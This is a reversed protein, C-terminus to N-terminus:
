YYGWVAYGDLSVVSADVVSFSLKIAAHEANGDAVVTSM